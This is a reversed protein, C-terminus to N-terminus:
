RIPVACPVSPRGKRNGDVANIDMSGGLWPSRFHTVDLVAANQDDAGTRGSVGGGDVGAARHQLRNQHLANLRATLECDRGLDLVPRAIDLHLSRVQHHPHFGMRLRDPGLDNEIMNLRKVQGLTGKGPDAVAACGVRRVRDNQRCARLRLPQPQGGFLVELAEANRGARGAVPEEIAALFHRDHATAVGSHLLRKEQRVERGLDRQDMAAIRKAGLFDQLVPQEVIRLDLDDPVMLNVLDDARM